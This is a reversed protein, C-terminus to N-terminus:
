LKLSASLIPEIDRFAAVVTKARKNPLMRIIVTKLAKDVLTLLFSKQDKGFITDIKFHGLKQKLKAEAPSINLALM